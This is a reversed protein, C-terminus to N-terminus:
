LICLLGGITWIKLWIFEAWARGNCKLILRVSVGESGVPSRAKFKDVFNLTVGYIATSM